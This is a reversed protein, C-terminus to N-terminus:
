FVPVVHIAHAEAVAAVVKRAPGLVALHADPRHTCALKDAREASQARDHIYLPGRVVALNGHAIVCVRGRHDVQPLSAALLAPHLFSLHRFWSLCFLCTQVCALLCWCLVVVALLSPPSYHPSTFFFPVLWLSIFARLPASSKTAQAPGARCPTEGAGGRKNQRGGCASFLWLSALGLVHASPLRPLVFLEPHNALTTHLLEVKATLVSLSHAAERYKSELTDLTVGEPWEAGDCFVYRHMPGKAFTRVRRQKQKEAEKDQEEQEHQKDQEHTTKEKEKEQEQEKQQQARKRKSKKAVRERKVIPTQENPVAGMM